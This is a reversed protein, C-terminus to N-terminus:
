PLPCTQRLLMLAARELLCLAHPVLMMVRNPRASNRSAGRRKDSTREAGGGRADGPLAQFFSPVIRFKLTLPHGQAGTRGRTLPFAISVHKGLFGVRFRNPLSSNVTVKYTYVGRLGDRITVV